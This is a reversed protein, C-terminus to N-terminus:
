PAPPRALLMFEKREIALKMERDILGGFARQQKRHDFLQPQLDPRHEVMDRHIKHGLAGLGMLLDDGRQLRAIGLRRPRGHGLIQVHAARADGRGQVTAVLTKSHLPYRNAYFFADFCYDLQCQWILGIRTAM